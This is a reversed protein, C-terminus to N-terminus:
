RASRSFAVLENTVMRLGLLNGIARCRALSDRDAMGGAFLDLRFDARLSSPFGGHYPASFNHGAWCAMSCLM